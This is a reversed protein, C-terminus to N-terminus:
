NTSKRYVVFTEHPTGAVLRELSVFGLEVGTLSALEQARASADAM